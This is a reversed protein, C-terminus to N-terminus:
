KLAERAASTYAASIESLFSTQAKVVTNIWDIQSAGAVQQEFEVLSQLAKEYSDLSAHGTKKALAILKENLARVREAADEFSGVVDQPNPITTSATKDTAM